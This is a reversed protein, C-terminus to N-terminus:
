LKAGPRDPLRFAESKDGSWQIFDSLCKRDGTNVAGLSAVTDGTVIGSKHLYYRWAVHGAAQNFQAVINLKDSSGFKKM